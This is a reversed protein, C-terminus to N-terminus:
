CADRLANLTEHLITAFLHLFILLKNNIDNLCGQLNFPSRPTWCNHSSIMVTAKRKFRSAAGLQLTTSKGCGTKGVFACKTGQLTVM